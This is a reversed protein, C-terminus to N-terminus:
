DEGHIVRQVQDNNLGRGELYTMLKVRYMVIDEAPLIMAEEEEDESVTEVAEAQTSEPSEEQTQAVADLAPEETALTSRKDDELGLDPTEIQDDATSETGNKNKEKAKSKNKGKTKGKSKKKAKDKTKGKTKDKAKDKPKDKIKDKTTDETKDEVLAEPTDEAEQSQEHAIEQSEDVTMEVAETIDQEKQGSEDETVTEQLESELAEPSSTEEVSESSVNEEPVNHTQEGDEAPELSDQGQTEENLEVNEVETSEAVNSDVPTDNQEASTDEAPDAMEETSATEASLADEEGDSENMHSPGLDYYEQLVLIMHEYVKLYDQPDKKAIAWVLAKSFEKESKLLQYMAKEYGDDSLKCSSRVFQNIKEQRSENQFKVHQILLQIAKAEQKKQKMLLWLCVAGFLAFIICLEILIIILM